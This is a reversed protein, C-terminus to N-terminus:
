LTFASYQTLTERLGKKKPPPPSFPGWFDPVVGCFTESKVVRLGRGRGGWTGLINFGGPFGSLSSCM